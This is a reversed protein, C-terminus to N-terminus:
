EKALVSPLSVPPVERMLAYLGDCTVLLIKHAEAYQRADPSFGVPSVFWGSDVGEAALSAFLERLRKTPVVGESGAACCVLVRPRVDGRRKLEMDIDASGPRLVVSYDDFEALAAVIARLKERSWGAMEAELPMGGAVADIRESIQAIPLTGGRPQRWMRWLLFIVLAGGVFLAGFVLKGANQMAPATTDGGMGDPAGPATPAVVNPPAVAQPTGSDRPQPRATAETVPSALGSAQRAERVAAIVRDRFSEGTTRSTLDARALLDGTSSLVLLTPYTTVKYRDRLKLDQESPVVPVPNGRRYDLKLFVFDGLFANVFDPHFEVEEQFQRSAPSWDSGTFLALVHSRRRQAERLAADYQTMWVDVPREPIKRTSATPPAPRPRPAQWPVDPSFNVREVRGNELIVEGQSYSLIEKAGSQSQGNPWGYANIVDEKTAGPGVVPRAENAAQLAAFALIGIGTIILRPLLSLLRVACTNVVRRGHLLLNM